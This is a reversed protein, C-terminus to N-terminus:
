DNEGILMSRRDVMRRGNRRGAAATAALQLASLQRRPRRAALRISSAFANQPVKVVAETAIGENAAAAQVPSTALRTLLAHLQMAVAVEDTGDVDTEDLEEVDDVGNLEDEEVMVLVLVVVVTVIELVSAGVLVGEGNGGPGFVQKFGCSLQWLEM